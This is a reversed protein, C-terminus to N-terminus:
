WIRPGGLFFLDPSKHKEVAYAERLNQYVVIDDSREIPATTSIMVNRRKPLPKGDRMSLLTNRGYICTAGTTQQKFHPLDRPVRGIWPISNQYGVVGNIGVAAIISNM